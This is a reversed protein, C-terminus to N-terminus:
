ECEQADTLITGIASAAMQDAEREPKGFYTRYYSALGERAAAIDAPTVGSRRPITRPEKLPRGLLAEDIDTQYIRIEAFHITGECKPWGQVLKRNLTELAPVSPLTDQCDNALVSSDMSSGFVSETAQLLAPHHVIAQCSLNRPGPYDGSDGASAESGISELYPGLIGIFEAFQKESRLIDDIGKVAVWDRTAPQTLIERGFSAEQASMIFHMSRRLLTLIRAKKGARAPDSWDANEPESAWLQVAEAIPAFVPDAQQIVPLALGPARMLVATALENNRVRYFDELCSATSIGQPPEACRQRQALAKRQEPIENSPGWGLASTRALAYLKSMQADADSLATDACITKEVIGSAHDCAFGPAAAAVSPTLVCLLILLAAKWLEHPRTM